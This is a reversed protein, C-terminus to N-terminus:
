EEERYFKAANEPTVANIITNTVYEFGAWKALRPAIEIRFHYDKNNYNSMKYFLNYAPYNMKNLTTLIRKLIKALIAIEEDNLETISHVCRKPMIWAEFCFRSAYPSFAVFKDDQYVRRESDKEHEIVKCMPCVGGNKSKYERIISAEEKIETPFLNYSIIQHHAHSLSAAAEDGRNKFCTVYEVGNKKYGETVRRKIMSIIKEIMKEDLEEFEVGHIPTEIIVEHDGYANGFTYFENDTRLFPVNSGVAKFKNEIARFDWMNKNPNKAEEIVRPIMYENEPCFPCNDKSSIKRGEKKFDSPRKSRETAIIVYKELFYHKRLQAM